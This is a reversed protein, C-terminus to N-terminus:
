FLLSGMAIWTKKRHLYRHEIRGDGGGSGRLRHEHMKDQKRLCDNYIELIKKEEAQLKQLLLASSDAAFAALDFWFVAIIVIYATRCVM